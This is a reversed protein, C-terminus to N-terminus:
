LRRGPPGGPARGRRASSAGGGAAAPAGASRCPGRGTPGPTPRDSRGPTRHSPRDRPRPGGPPPGLLPPDRHNVGPVAIGHVFYWVVPVGATLEPHDTVGHVGM